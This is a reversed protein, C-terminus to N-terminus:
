IQKNRVLRAIRLCASHGERIPVTISGARVWVQFYHRLLLNHKLTWDEQKLNVNKNWSSWNHVKNGGGWKLKYETYLSWCDAAKHTSTNHGTMGDKWKRSCPKAPLPGGDWVRCEGRHFLELRGDRKARERGGKVVRWEKMLIWNEERRRQATM